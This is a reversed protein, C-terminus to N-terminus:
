TAKELNRVGVWGWYVRHRRILGGDIEMVEVLDTQEGEPTERPYEWFLVRGDTLYGKRHYRRSALPRAALRTFFARLEGHGRLMGRDTQMLRRVLPSEFVADEAYLAVIGEVDCSQNRADWERYIREIHDMPAGYCRRPATRRTIAEAHASANGISSLPPAARCDTAL